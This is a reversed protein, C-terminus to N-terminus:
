AVSVEFPLFGSVCDKGPLFASCVTKQISSFWVCPRKLPLFGSVCDKSPFLALCVTKPHPAGGSLYTQPTATGSVCDASAVTITHRHRM